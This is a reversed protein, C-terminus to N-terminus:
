SGTEDVEVKANAAGKANVEGKGVHSPADGASIRSASEWNMDDLEDRCREALMLALQRMFDSNLRSSPLLHRAGNTRESEDLHTPRQRDREWKLLADRFDIMADSIANNEYLMLQGHYLREFRDRAIIADPTDLSDSAALTAALDVAENFLVRKADAYSKSQGYISINFERAKQAAAYSEATLERERQDMYQVLTFIGAIIFGVTTVGKAFLEWTALKGSVLYRPVDGVWNTLLFFAGVLIALSAGTVLCAIQFSSM